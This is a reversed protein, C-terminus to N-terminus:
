SSDVACRPTGVFYTYEFGLRKVVFVKGPQRKILKKYADLARDAIEYDGSEEDIAILKGKHKPLLKKSAEKFIQDIKNM